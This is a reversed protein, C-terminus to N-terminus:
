PALDSPSCGLVRQFTATMHAHSAFGVISSVDALSLQGTRVLDCAHDVRRRVIYEHPSFGTAQRFARCFHRTSMGAIDALAALTLDGSINAEIAERARDIRRWGSRIELNRSRADDPQLRNILQAIATEGILTGAPFGTSMETRLIELLHKIAASQAHVLKEVEGKLTGHLTREILASSVDLSINRSGGQWDGFHSHGLRFVQPDKFAFDPRYRSSGFRIQMPGLAWVICLEPFAIDFRGRESFELEVFRAGIWRSPDSLHILKPTESMNELYQPIRRVISVM